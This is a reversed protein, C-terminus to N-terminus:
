GDLREDDDPESATDQTEDSRVSRPVIDPADPEDEFLDTREDNEDAGATTVSTLDAGWPSAGNGASGRAAESLPAEAGTIEPTSDPNDTEEAPSDEHLSDKPYLSERDRAM